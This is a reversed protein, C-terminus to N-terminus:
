MLLEVPSHGRIATHSYLDKRHNRSVDLLFKYGLDTVGSGWTYVRFGLGATRQEGDKVWSGISYFRFGSGQVKFRSGQVKFGLGRV